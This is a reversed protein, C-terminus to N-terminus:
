ERSPTESSVDSWRVCKWETTGSVTKAGGSDGFLIRNIDYGEIATLSTALVPTQGDDVFLYARCRRLDTLIRYTHWDRADLRHAHVYSEDFAVADERFLLRCSTNPRGGGIWLEGASHNEAADADRHMMRMRAEVLKDRGGNWVDPQNDIYAGGTPPLRLIGDPLLQGRDRHVLWAPRSDQPYRTAAYGRWPATVKPLRISALTKQLEAMPDQLLWSLNFRACRIDRGGPVDQQWVALLTGDGAQVCSPYSAQGGTYPFGIDRAATWTRAGDFSAAACLPFRQIANDWLVLIGRREDAEFPCLAAPANSGRLPSPKVDKWTHGEDASRTEYLHSAGTRMLMCITGDDLEVIAPEDTGLVAGEAIKRYTASADGGNAWTGGNDTSRMVGARLDMQGETTLTKGQECLVDWSYGMLLTGSKLRLGRHTKGCTYRHNMPIAYPQSWTKGNDDSRVCWTTSTRIGEGKPLTTCTVLVRNGSVVISPDADLLDKNAILPRPESWTKGADCSFAHFVDYDQGGRQTRGWAVLIRGDALMAMCPWCSQSGDAHSAVTTHEFFPAAGLVPCSAVMVGAVGALALKM